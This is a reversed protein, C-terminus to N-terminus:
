VLGIQINTTKTQCWAHGDYIKDMGDVVKGYVDPIAVEVHPLIFIVDGNFACLLYKM